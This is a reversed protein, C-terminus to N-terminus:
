VITHTASHQDNPLLLPVTVYLPLIDKASDSIFASIECMSSM